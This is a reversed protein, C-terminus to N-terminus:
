IYEKSEMKVNQQVNVPPALPIATGTPQETFLDPRQNYVTAALSENKRDWWYPVEILTIGEYLFNLIYFTCGKKKCLESKTLDRFQGAELSNTSNHFIGV